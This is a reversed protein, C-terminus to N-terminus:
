RTESLPQRAELEGHNVETGIPLYQSLSKFYAVGTKM